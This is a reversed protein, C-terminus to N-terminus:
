RPLVRGAHFIEYIALQPDTEWKGCLEALTGPAPLLRTDVFVLAKRNSRHDLTYFMSFPPTAGELWEALYLDPLAHANLRFLSVHFDPMWDLFAQNQRLINVSAGPDFRILLSDAGTECAPSPLAPAKGSAKVILPGALLSVILVGALGATWARSPLQDEPKVFMGRGFRELVFVLGMAPLLGFVAMSAAYPRMRFADTPPLLPVSIFIGLAATMMLSNFPDSRDRFWRYIGLASLLYLGWRAILNIARNGGSVYSYISYWTDSFLAQWGHLAGQAFLVPQRRILEFALQYIRQSQEPEQLALLEPHTEFVYHWSHGGAAVGYLTYSFNAFPVGSPTALMRVLLFNIMFGALIATGGAALFRSSFRRSDARLLWGAWLLVLPLLFFAGARANVALTTTFLGGWILRSSRDAAGRWLLAIGLAGLPVGLNESMIVGSHARHFLFLITLVLVAPEAGHTRQIERATLYCALGTIATFVALAAMLNRGTLALIVAFLGPFIPRRASFVSFDLGALLRLADVYYDHADYLPILGSLVTSQTQGSAWLGALPFAFLSMTLSLAFLRGIWGPMRFTIYLLVVTVLMTLAFGSRLSMGIPRLLNPSRNLLILSFLTLAALLHLLSAAAPTWAPDIRPLTTTKM